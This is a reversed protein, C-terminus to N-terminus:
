IGLSNAVVGLGILALLAFAVIVALLFWRQVFESM